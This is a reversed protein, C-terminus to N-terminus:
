MNNISLTFVIILLLIGGVSVSMVIGSIMRRQRSRTVEELNNKDAKKCRICSDIFWIVSGIPLFVIILGGIFILMMGMILMGQKTKM